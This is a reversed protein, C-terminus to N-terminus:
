TGADKDDANAGARRTDATASDGPDADDDHQADSHKGDDLVVVDGAVLGSIVQSRAAGRVGLKIKRDVINDGSQVRVTNGDGSGNIALNPVSLANDAHLLVVRGDFQQGPIWGYRRVAAASVSAKMLLYKVPSERSRTQAAAAIWTIKSTTKQDPAGLPHLEVRNGVSIGQAQMQPIALEVEMSATDPLSALPNGAFLSSGVHPKQGSWDADLVLVGDHPAHLELAQLDSRKQDANISYTARQADLVALEAAGRKESQGLRWDLIDQKTNLFAEDQVADLVTNRSVAIQGANAYRHAIALQAAVQAMDVSLQGQKGGLDAQKGLRAIVNRQLDVLAQDLDQQSQTASFRAVLDGKKVRNGDPLVWALQRPTWQQGPVLLPTSKTAKLEGQAQVTLELKGPQMRETLAGVADQKSCGVLTSALLVTACVARLTCSMM